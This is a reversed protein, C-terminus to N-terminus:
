VSNDSIFVSLETHHHIAPICIRLEYRSKLDKLTATVIDPKKLFPFEVSSNNCFRSPKKYFM